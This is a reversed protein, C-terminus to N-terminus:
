IMSFAVHPWKINQTMKISQQMWDIFISGRVHIGGFRENKANIAFLAFRKTQRAM